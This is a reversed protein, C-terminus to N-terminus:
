EEKKERTMLDKVAKLPSKNKYIVKYVECTIPMEVKYKKSLQYAAQTTTIGEAIMQMHSIVDKLKKGKGIQEGVFRNRSYPSMCTTALDGLGSLGFFTEKKAGMAMGL